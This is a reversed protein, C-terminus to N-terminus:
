QALTHQMADLRIGHVTPVQGDVDEETRERLIPLFVTDAEDERAHAVVASQSQARDPVGSTEGQDLIGGLGSEVVHRTAGDHGTEGVDHRRGSVQVALEQGTQALGSRWSRWPQSRGRGRRRIIQVLHDDQQAIVGSVVERQVLLARELTADLPALTQVLEILARVIDAIELVIRQFALM